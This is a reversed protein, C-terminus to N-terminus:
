KTDLLDVAMGFAGPIADEHGDAIPAHKMSPTISPIASQEWLHDPSQLATIL